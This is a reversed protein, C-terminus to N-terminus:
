ARLFTFKDAAYLYAAVTHVRFGCARDINYGVRSKGLTDVNFVDFNRTLRDGKIPFVRVAIVVM